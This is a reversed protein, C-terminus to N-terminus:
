ACCCAQTPLLSGSRLLRRDGDRRELLRFRIPRPLLLPRGTLPGRGVGCAGRGRRDAPGARYRAAAGAVVGVAHRADLRARVRDRIEPAVPLVAGDLEEVAAPAGRRAPRRTAGCACSSRTAHPDPERMCAPCCPVSAAHLGAAAAAGAWGQLGGAGGHLRGDGGHLSVPGRLRHAEPWVIQNHNRPLLRPLLVERDAGRPHDPDLLSRLHARSRGRNRCVEQRCQSRAPTLKVMCSAHLKCAAQMSCRCRQDVGM